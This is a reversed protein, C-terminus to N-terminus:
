RLITLDFAPFPILETPTAVVITDKLDLAAPEPKSSGTKKAGRTSKALRRQRERVQEPFDNKAKPHSRMMEIEGLWNIDRSSLYSYTENRRVNRAIFVLEVGDLEGYQLLKSALGDLRRVVQRNPRKIAKRNTMATGM